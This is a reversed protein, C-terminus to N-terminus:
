EYWKYNIKLMQVASTKMLCYYCSPIMNLNMAQMNAAKVM